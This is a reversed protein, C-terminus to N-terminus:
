KYGSPRFTLGSRLQASCGEGSGCRLTKKRIKRTIRTIKTNWTNKDDKEFNNEMSTAYHNIAVTLWPSKQQLLNWWFLVFDVTFHAGRELQTFNTGFVVLVYFDLRATMQQACRAQGTPLNGFLCWTLDIYWYIYIINLFPTPRLHCTGMKGIRFWPCPFYRSQRKEVSIIPRRWSNGTSFHRAAGLWNHQYKLDPHFMLEMSRPRPNTRHSNYHKLLPIYGHNQFSVIKASLLNIFKKQYLRQNFCWVTNFSV